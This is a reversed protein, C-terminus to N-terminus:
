VLGISVLGGYGISVQGTWIFGDIGVRVFGISVLRVFGISVAGGVRLRLFATSIGRLGVLHLRFTTSALIVSIMM